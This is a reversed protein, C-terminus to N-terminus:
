TRTVCTKPTRTGGGAGHGHREFMTTSLFDGHLDGFRKGFRQPAFEGDDHVDLIQVVSQGAPDGLHLGLDMQLAETRALRRDGEELLGIALRQHALDDVLRDVFRALLDELVLRELGRGRRLDVEDVRDVADDVSLGIELEGHLHVQHGVERQGIEAPELRLTEDGVDLVFRDIFRQLTERIRLLDIDVLAFARDGLLAVDDRDVELARDVTLREFAAGAITEVQREAAAREHGAELLLQDACFGAVLARHVDREGLVVARCLERALLGLERDLHVRHLGSRGDDDVVIEGLLEAEVREVHQLLAHAILELGVIRAGAPGVHLAANEVREVLGVAEIQRLAHDIRLELVDPTLDFGLQLALARGGSSSPM